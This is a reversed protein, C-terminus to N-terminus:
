RVQWVRFAERWQPIAHSRHSDMLYLVLPSGLICCTCKWNHKATFTQECVECEFKSERKRRANSADVIKQSGVVNKWRSPSGNSVASDPSLQDGMYPQEAMERVLQISPSLLSFGIEQNWEDKVAIDPVHSSEPAQDDGPPMPYDHQHSASVQYGEFSQAVDISLQPRSGSPGSYRRQFAYAGALDPLRFSAEPTSPASVPYPAHRVLMSASSARRHHTRNGWRDIPSTPSLFAESDSQGRRHSPINTTTRPGPGLEIELRHPRPPDVHDPRLLLGNGSDSHYEAPEPGTAASVGPYPADGSTFFGGEGPPSIIGRGHQYLNCESVFTSAPYDVLTDDPLPATTPPASHVGQRAPDCWTDSPAVTRETV